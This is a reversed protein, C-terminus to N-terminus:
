EITLKKYKITFDQWGTGYKKYINVKKTYTDPITEKYVAVKANTNAHRSIQFTNDITTVGNNKAFIKLFIGLKNLLEYNRFLEIIIETNPFMKFFDEYFVILELYEEIKLIPLDIFINTDNDLSAKCAKIIMNQFDFLLKLNIINVSVNTGTLNKYVEYIYQNESKSNTVALYKLCDLKSQHVDPHYQLELKHWINSDSDLLPVVKEFDVDYFAVNSIVEQSIDQNVLENLFVDPSLSTQEQQKKRSFFGFMACGRPLNM